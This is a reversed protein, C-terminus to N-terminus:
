KRKFFYVMPTPPIAYYKNQPEFSLMLEKRKLEFRYPFPAFPDPNTLSLYGLIVDNDVDYEWDERFSILNKIQEHFDSETNALVLADSVSWTGDSSFTWIINQSSLNDADTSVLIWSGIIREKPNTASKHVNNANDSSCGVIITLLLLMCMFVNIKKMTTSGGLSM